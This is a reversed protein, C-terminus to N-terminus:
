VLKGKNTLGGYCNNKVRGTGKQAFVSPKGGAKNTSGASKRSLEM